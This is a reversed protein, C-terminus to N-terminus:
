IGAEAPERGGALHSQLAHDSQVQAEDSEAMWPRRSMLVDMNLHKCRIGLKKRLRKIRSVGVHFGDAALEKQLREPGYSERTRVHAVKIAVELRTNDQTRRSPARKLWAYYGSKGVEFVRSMLSVPFQGKM